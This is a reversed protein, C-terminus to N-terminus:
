ADAAESAAPTDLLIVDFEKALERLLESFVPRGLLESPNPPQAGATLVSLDRMATIRQIVDPGGRGSLVASRGTRNELGFLSHQSPNRMDADILLTHEGLQSFVVALNAALYSRGEGPGPSVVALTRREHEGTFWRVKLQSRLARLVEVQYSFPQYAAVLEESIEDQGALLYPYEYQRALAFQIDKVSLLGLGVATEGFHLGQERQSHLIREVDGPALKGADILIAGIARSADLPNLNM